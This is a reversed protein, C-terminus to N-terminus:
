LVSRPGAAIAYYYVRYERQSPSAFTAEWMAAKGAENKFGPMEKETVRLTVLDPAWNRASTYM